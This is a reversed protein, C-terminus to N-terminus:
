SPNCARAPARITGARMDTARAECGPRRRAMHAYGDLAERFARGLVGHRSKFRRELRRFPVRDILVTLVLDVASLRDTELGKTGLRAVCARGYRGVWPLYVAARREAVWPPLNLWADKRARGGDVRISDLPLTAPMLSRVTAEFIDRIENAAAAQTDTLRMNALPDRQRRVHVEAYPSPADSTPLLAADGTPARALLAAIKQSKLRARKLREKRLAQTKRHTGPRGALARVEDRYSILLREAPRRDGRALATRAVCLLHEFERGLRVTVTGEGAGPVADTVPVSRVATRGTEAGCGHGRKM